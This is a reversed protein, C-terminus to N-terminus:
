VAGGCEIGEAGGLVGRRQQPGRGVFPVRSWGDLCRVDSIEELPQAEVDADSPGGYRIELAGGGTGRPWVCPCLADSRRIGGPFSVYGLSVKVL